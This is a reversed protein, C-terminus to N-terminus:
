RTTTLHRAHRRLRRFAPVMTTITLAVGGISLGVVVLDWSPRRYYLFPFDLSHLGNYLWRNLRSLHTQQMSILGNAPDLYIATEDPDDYSIRLVPLPRSGTRDYYYSDYRDLWQAERVRSKPLLAPAVQELSRDDLRDFTGAGPADLWVSAHPIALQQNFIASVDRNTSVRATPLDTSTYALAFPRAGFQLVELEKVALQRSLTAVAGALADPSALAARFGGGAITERQEDSPDTSPAWDWPTLSLAGSLAWTFTFLGFLLGAYHHWWMWGAYPSHSPVRKLRFRKFPSFRWIGIILGSLCMVCGILAAYIISYRWLERQMRFPTFYTWHIVAGAYGFARGRATTKMVPEGTRESLYIVTDDADGLAIRQMPLFRPLGGDLTWQDPDVLRGGSKATAAAEPFLHNVITLADSASVSTLVDGTDAYITTWDGASRFRYVPRSGIMGVRIQETSGAVHQIADHLPVRIRSVDLRELRALREEPTLRPMREYMMVIGSVFWALFVLCGAIGLWRHIYILWRRWGFWASHRM